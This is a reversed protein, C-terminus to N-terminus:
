VIKSLQERIRAFIYPFSYRRYYTMTEIVRQLELEKWYLSSRAVFLAKRLDLTNQNVLDHKLYKAYQSVHTRLYKPYTKDIKTFTYEFPRKFIDLGNQINLSLQHNDLYDPQNHEQHSFARVKAKVAGSGGLFSFHWGGDAVLDFTSTQRIQEPELDRLVGFTTGKTGIWDQSCRCNIFYNYAHQKFAATRDSWRHDKIAKARPIEDSDSILIIDNAHCKTLGRKIANRQHIERSWVPIHNVQFPKPTFYPLSTAPIANEMDDVVVHIIKGLFPHFRKQNIKYHLPKPTGTFTNTSEVLVHKDVVSSLEHLRLDLLDLENNFTFCDYIM